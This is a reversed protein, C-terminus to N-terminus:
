DCTDLKSRAISAWQKFFCFLLQQKNELMRQPIPLLRAPPPWNKVSPMGNWRCTLSSQSSPPPSFLRPWKTPLFYIINRFPIIRHHRRRCSPCNRAWPLLLLLMTTRGKDSNIVGHIIIFFFTRPMSFFAFSKKQRQFPNHDDDYYQLLYETKQIKVEQNSPNDPQYWDEQERGEKERQLPKLIKM